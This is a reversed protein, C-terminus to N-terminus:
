RTDAVDMRTQWSGSNFYRKLGVSIADVLKNQHIESNLKAEETQNSIFATEVLVSPIDPSKLVAFGAQEVNKKHLHSITGIENLVHNALRISDNITANMSLDILTQKLYRDKNDLKVGGILDVANEKKALWSATTSTAGNESLAYISAGHAERRPAADAHISVFLDANAQRAKIRREALSIFYDGDRILVSRMGPEKDIRAKLKRAISLTINKEMSGQPGIAGPDKGGHGADIAITIIRNKEPKRSTATLVAKSTAAPTVNRTHAAPAPKKNKQILAILPDQEYPETILKKSPYLDLVLRHGFQDVPDLAFAKPVADTKLEVVLRVTRSNFNGVRLAGVLPDRSETKAPLSKLVDSLSINEMDMVIRKPSQLTSVSYKVPKSSELTLRTYEPGAWYRAATIQTGASTDNSYLALQLLIAIVFLLFPSCQRTGPQNMRIGTKALTILM